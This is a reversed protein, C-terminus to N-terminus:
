PNISDGSPSVTPRCGGHKLNGNMCIPTWVKMRQGQAQVEEGLVVARGDPSIYSQRVAADRIPFAPFVTHGCGHHGPGYFTPLSSMDLGSFSKNSSMIAFSAASGMM